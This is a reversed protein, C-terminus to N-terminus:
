LLLFQSTSSFQHHRDDQFCYTHVRIILTCEFFIKGFEFPIAQKRSHNVLIIFDRSLWCVTLSNYLTISCVTMWEIFSTLIHKILLSFPSTALVVISSTWRVNIHSHYFRPGEFRCTKRTRDDGDVTNSWCKNDTPVNRARDNTKQKWIENERVTIWLVKHLTQEPRYNNYYKNDHQNFYRRIFDM